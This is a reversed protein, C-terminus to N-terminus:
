WNDIAEGKRVASGDASERNEPRHERLPGKGRRRRHERRRLVDLRLSARLEM